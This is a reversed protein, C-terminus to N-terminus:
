KKDGGSMRREAASLDQALKQTSDSRLKELSKDQSPPTSGAGGPFTPNRHSTAYFGSGKFIVPSAHIVRRCRGGCLPCM